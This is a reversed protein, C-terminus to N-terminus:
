KSVLALYGFQAIGGVCLIIGYFFLLTDWEARAIHEMIDVKYGGGTDAGLMPNFSKQRKEHKKIHNTLLGLLALGLMMGVVPPLHLFSHLFVTMIITLLFLFM